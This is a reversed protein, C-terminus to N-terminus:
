GNLLTVVFTVSVSMAENLDAHNLNFKIDRVHIGPDNDVADLLNKLSQYSGTIEMRVTVESFASYDVDKEVMKGTEADWIDMKISLGKANDLLNSPVALGNDECIKGMKRILDTNSNTLEYLSAVFGYEAKADTNSQIVYGETRLNLELEDKKFQLDSLETNKEGNKDFLPMFGFQFALYFLGVVGVVLLMVKERKSLGTNQVQM